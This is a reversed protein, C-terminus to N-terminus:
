VYAFKLLSLTGSYDETCQLGRLATCQLGRGHVTIRQRASYDEATCQLGRGHVTIRQWASYGEATCQLGRGHVTIRQRVLTWSNLFMQKVISLYFNDEETIRQRASYDEATCQLGRGHVTIRQRASYDEATCQLGRGHVTIRQRASYDEATCQLGRGHVTIRQQASYDEAVLNKFCQTGACAAHVSEPRVCVCVSKSSKMAIDEKSLDIFLIHKTEKHLNYYFLGTKLTDGSPSQTYPYIQFGGDRSNVSNRSFIKAPTGGEGAFTYYWNLACVYHM